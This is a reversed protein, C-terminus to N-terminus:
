HPPEKLRTLRCFFPGFPAARGEPWRKAPFFQFFTMGFIKEPIIALNISLPKNVHMEKNQLAYAKTQHIIQGPALTLGM